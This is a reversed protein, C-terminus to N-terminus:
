ILGREVGFMIYRRYEDQQQRTLATFDNWDGVVLFSGVDGTVAGPITVIQERFAALRDRFTEATLTESSEITLDTGGAM